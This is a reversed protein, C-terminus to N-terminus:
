KTGIAHRVVPHIQATHGGAHWQHWVPTPTFNTWAEYRLCRRCRKLRDYFTQARAKTLDTPDWREEELLRALLRSVREKFSNVTDGARNKRRRLSRRAMLEISRELKSSDIFGIKTQRKLLAMTDCGAILTAFDGVGARRCADAGTFRLELHCCAGFGTKSIRDGYVATNRGSGSDIKGYTVNECQYSKHNRGRWKLLLRRDLYRKASAAEMRNPLLFDIAVHVAHIVFSHRRIAALQQVTEVDPQHITVLGRWLNPHEPVKIDQPILRTGYKKRLWSMLAPPLPRWCFLVLTDVYAIAGLITFGTGPGDWDEIQCGECLAVSDLIDHM